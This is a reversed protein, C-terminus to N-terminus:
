ARGPERNRAVSSAVVCLMEYALHAGNLATQGTPDLAPSVEVVDCGVIDLDRMSRLMVQADRMSFGGPEPVGTGPCHVSDLGDIDFTVYTRQNRVVRLMEAIVGDRGIEEFDDMTIVRMGADRAWAYESNDYVQNRLGIQISRSPDILNEEVARRFPTSNNIKTGRVLDSTDSHADFQVLGVPTGDHLGRLAPLSITHDGGIAIPVVKGERLREFAKTIMEVSGLLDLPHVPVDGVDAIRCMQFPAIGTAGNVPRLARSAERIATPAQRSGPRYSTGLDFPVGVIAIDAQGADAFPLSRCRMFTALGAFRPTDAADAPSFEIYEGYM